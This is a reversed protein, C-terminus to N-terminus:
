LNAFKHDLLSPCRSEAASSPAASALGALAVVILAYISRVLM